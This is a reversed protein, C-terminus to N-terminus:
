ADSTAETLKENVFAEVDDLLRQTLGKRTDPRIGLYDLVDARGGHLHRRREVLEAVTADATLELTTSWECRCTASLHWAVSASTGSGSGQIAAALDAAYRRVRPSSEARRAAHMATTHDTRGFARTIEPWSGHTVRRAVAIAAQRYEVMPRRRSPGTLDDVHVDFHHAALRAVDDPTLYTM